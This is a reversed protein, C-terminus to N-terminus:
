QLTVTQTTSANQVQTQLINIEADKVSVDAAHAEQEDKLATQATLLDASPTNLIGNLQDLAVQLAKSQATLGTVQGNITELMATLTQIATETTM